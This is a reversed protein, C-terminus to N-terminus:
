KPAAPEATAGTTEAPLTADNTKSAKAQKSLKKV